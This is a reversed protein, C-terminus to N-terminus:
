RPLDLAALAAALLAPDHAAGQATALTAAVAEPVDEAGHIQDPDYLVVDPRVGHRELASVHDAVGM